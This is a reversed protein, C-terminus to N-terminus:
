SWWRISTLSQYSLAKGTAGYEEGSGKWKHLAHGQSLPTSINNEGNRSLIPKRSSAPSRILHGFPLQHDVFVEHAGIQRQGIPCLLGRRIHLLCRWIHPCHPCFNFSPPVIRRTIEATANLTIKGMDTFALDLDAAYSPPYMIDANPVHGTVAMYPEIHFNMLYWPEFSYLRPKASKSAANM